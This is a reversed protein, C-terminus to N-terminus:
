GSRAPRSEPRAALRRPVAPELGRGDVEVSTIALEKANAVAWQGVAWAQTGEADVLLTRGDTSTQVDGLAATLEATVAAPDGATDPSRLSCDLGAPTQGSLASAFARAMVEHQAYATRTRRASSRSPPM